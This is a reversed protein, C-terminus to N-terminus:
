KRVFRKKVEVHSVMFDWDSDPLYDSRARSGFLYITVVPIGALDFVKHITDTSFTIVDQYTMHQQETDIEYNEHKEHNRKV